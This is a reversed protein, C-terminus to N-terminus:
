RTMQFLLARTKPGVIGDPELGFDVQFKMVAGATLDGYYGTSEVLYGM